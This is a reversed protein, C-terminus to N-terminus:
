TVLIHYIIFVTTEKSYHSLKFVRFGLGLMQSHRITM